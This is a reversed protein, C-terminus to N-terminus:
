RKQIAELEQMQRKIRLPARVKGPSTSATSSLASMKLAIRSASGTGATRSFGSIGASSPAFGSCLEPSLGRDINKKERKM